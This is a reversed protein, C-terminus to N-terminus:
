QPQNSLKELHPTSAVLGQRAAERAVKGWPVSNFKALIARRRGPNIWSIFQVRGAIQSQSFYPGCFAHGNALNAADVLQRELEALYERRVDPHGRRVTIRTIPTEDSLRGFHTKEPHMDFGHQQLISHVTASFGSKELDFHGSITMDDVYRSYNLKAKGCAAAIRADVELLTQEALFPSTILGLALHHRHTCLRTCIRAVDPTCGLRQRFLRYVRDSKISPYFNSIDATFVFISKLHPIINTKIHRGRIGGHSHSSPTLKAMLVSRLLRDQFKRLDGRVDLVTRKKLPRSPDVLLLEECFTDATNVLEHLRDIPLGTAAALHKVRRINLM